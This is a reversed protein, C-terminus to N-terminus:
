CISHRIKKDLISEEKRRQGCVWKESKLLCTLNKWGRQESEVEVDEAFYILVLEAIKEVVQITDDNKLSMASM